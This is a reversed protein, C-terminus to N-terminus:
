RDLEEKLPYEIEQVMAMARQYVRITIKTGDSYRRMTM